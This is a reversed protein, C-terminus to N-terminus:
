HGLLGLLSFNSEVRLLLRNTASNPLLETNPLPFSKSDKLKRSAMELNQETLNPM